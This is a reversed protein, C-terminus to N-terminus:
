NLEELIGVMKKKYIELAKILIDKPDGMGEVVEVDMDVQDIDNWDVDDHQNIQDWEKKVDEEIWLKTARTKNRTDYTFGVATVPVHKAHSIGTGLVAICTVDIQQQPALKLILSNHCIANNNPPQAVLDQGTVSVINNSGQLEPNNFKQLKFTVSCRSCFGDCDCDNKSILKGTYTIPILGLRHAIMEDALVTRNEKIEIIEIALTPIESLLIRRLSNAFSVNSHITFKINSSTIEKVEIKM